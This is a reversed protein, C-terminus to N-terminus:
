RKLPFFTTIPTNDDMCSLNDVLFPKRCRQCCFDLRATDAKGRVWEVIENLREVPIADAKAAGSVRAKAGFTYAAIDNKDKLHSFVTYYLWPVLEAELGARRLAEDCSEAQHLETRNELESQYTSVFGLRSLAVLRILEVRLLADEVSVSELDAPLLNTDQVIRRDSRAGEALDRALGAYYTAAVLHAVDTNRSSGMSSKGGAGGLFSQHTAGRVHAQTLLYLAYFRQLRFESGDAARGAVLQEAHGTAAAANDSSLQKSSASLLERNMEYPNVSSCAALSWLLLAALCALRLGLFHFSTCM